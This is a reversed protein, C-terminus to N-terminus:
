HIKAIVERARSTLNIFNERNGLDMFKVGINEEIYYMTESILDM